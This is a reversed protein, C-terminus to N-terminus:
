RWTTNDDWPTNEDWLATVPLAEHVEAIVGAYRSLKGIQFQLGSGNPVTNVTRGFAGYVVEGDDCYRFNRFRASGNAQIRFNKASYNQHRYRRFVGSVPGIFAESLFGGGSSNVTQVYLREGAPVDVEIEWWFPNPLLAPFAEGTLYSYATGDHQWWGDEEAWGAAPLMWAPVPKLTGSSAPAGFLVETPAAGYWGIAYSPAEAGSVALAYVGWGNGQVPDYRVLPPQSAAGIYSFGFVPEAIGVEVRDIHFSDDIRVVAPGLKGGGVPTIVLQAPEIKLDNGIFMAAGINDVDNLVFSVLQLPEGGHTATLSTVEGSHRFVVGMMAVPRALDYEAVIADLGTGNEIYDLPGPVPDPPTPRNPDCCEGVFGIQCAFDAFCQM